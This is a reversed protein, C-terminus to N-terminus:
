FHEARCLRLGFFVLSHVGCLPEFREFLSEKQAEQAKKHGFFDQRISFIQRSLLVSEWLHTPAEVNMRLECNPISNDVRQAFGNGITQRTRYCTLIVRINPAVIRNNCTNNADSSWASSGASWNTRM